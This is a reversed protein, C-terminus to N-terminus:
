VFPYDISIFSLVSPVVAAPEAPFSEAITTADPFLPGREEREVSIVDALTYAEVAREREFDLHITGSEDVLWTAYDPYGETVTELEDSETGNEDGNGSDDDGLCGALGAVTSASAGVVFTRRRM